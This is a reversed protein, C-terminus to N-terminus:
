SGPVGLCLLARTPSIINIFSRRTKGKYRYQAPLNISYENELLREEQPFTEAEINFIDKGLKLSLLRSLKAGGLLILLYGLSTIFMYWIAKMQESSSVKLIHTSLFYLLLGTGLIVLIPRLALKNDKKGTQGFLSIGLLVVIVLKPMEIGSLFFLGHTLMFILRTIFEFTLGWEQFATYCVSYYHILLLIISVFRILDLNRHLAQVNEGNQM